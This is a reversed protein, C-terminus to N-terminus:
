YFSQFTSSYMSSVYCHWIGDFNVGSEGVAKDIVSALVYKLFAAKLSPPINNNFIMTLFKEFQVM